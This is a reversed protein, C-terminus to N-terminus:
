CFTFKNYLGRYASVSLNQKVEDWNYFPRKELLKQATKPGIGKVELLDSEIAENLRKLSNNTTIADDCISITENCTIEKPIDVSIEVDLIEKLNNAIEEATSNRSKKPVNGERYDNLSLLTM